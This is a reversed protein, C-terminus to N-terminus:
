PLRRMVEIATDFDPCLHTVAEVIFPHMHRQDVVAVIPTHYAHAFAIEMVSGISVIKTSEFIALVVDCREVDWRDRNLIGKAGSLVAGVENEVNAFADLPGPPLYEKGRLPSMCHFLDSLRRTAEERWSSCQEVTQGTMPGCLYAKLKSM